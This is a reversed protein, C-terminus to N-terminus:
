ANLVVYPSVVTSADPLTITSSFQPKGDLRLWIRYVTQNTQFLADPSVDVVVEMRQAIIYRSPDFFVLDGKQGLPPLKDTVFLPRSMLVGSPSLSRDKWNVPQNAQYSAIRTLQGMALPHAAWVATNWGLPLMRAAMEAVDAIVIAGAGARTVLRTAPANLIGLPMEQGAGLGRLFAYEATWAAAKGFLRILYHEAKLLPDAEPRPSQQTAQIAGADQLWQNSVVADGLLDWATFNTLRFTPETQVPADELGWRFRIGGFLSSVGNVTTATEADIRPAQLELSFMPIITARPYIFSEEVVAELLADSYDLPLLYGGTTGTTVSMAVKRVIRDTGVEKTVWGTRYEKELVRQCQFQNRDPCMPNAGRVLNLFDLLSKRRPVSVPAGDPPLKRTAAVKPSYVAM